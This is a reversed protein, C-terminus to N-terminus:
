VILYVHYLYLLKKIMVVCDVFRGFQGGAITYWSSIHDKCLFPNIFSLGAPHLKKLHSVKVRSFFSPNFGDYFLCMFRTAGSQCIYQKPICLFM